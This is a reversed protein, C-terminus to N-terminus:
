QTMDQITVGAPAKFVFRDASIKPNVKMDSFTTTSMPKGDPGYAIMKIMQGTEKHFSLVMKGRMGGGSKPTAEIVWVAIGDLSSDPLVKLESSGRWAELPDASSNGSKTKYGTKVGATESVTYAYTGDSIMTMTSEQKSTNGGVTTETVGSSEVRVLVSDGKHLTETTGEITSVMSFGQQKMNTVTKSKASYSKIKKSAAAIKAGVEEITEAALASGVFGFGLVLCVVWRIQRNM